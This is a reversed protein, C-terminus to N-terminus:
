NVSCRLALPLRQASIKSQTPLRPPAQFRHKAEKPLPCWVSDCADDLSLCLTGRGWCGWNLASPSAKFWSNPLSAVGCGRTVFAWPLLISALVPSPVWSLTMSIGSDTMKTKMLHCVPSEGPYIFCSRLLSQWLSLARNVLGKERWPLWESETQGRGLTHTHVTVQCSFDSADLGGCVKRSQVQSLSSINVVM